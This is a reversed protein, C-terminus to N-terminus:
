GKAKTRYFDELNVLEEHAEELRGEELLSRITGFTKALMANRENQMAVFQGLATEM